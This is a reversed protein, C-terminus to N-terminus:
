RDVEFEITTISSSKAGNLSREIKCHYENRPIKLSVGVTKTEVKLLQSSWQPLFFKDRMKKLWDLNFEFSSPLIPKMTNSQYCAHGHRMLSSVKRTDRSGAPPILCQTYCPIFRFLNIKHGAAKSATNWAEQAVKLKQPLFWLPMAIWQNENPISTNIKFPGRM